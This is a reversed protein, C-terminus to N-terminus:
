SETVLGRGTKIVKGEKSLDAHIRDLLGNIFISSKSTSYYKAMELYEDFTVKVPISPFEVLENIAMQMILNDILAVREIDWNDVHSEIIKLYEDYHFISARLLRCAFEKDDESKYLPLIRCVRDQQMEKVTKAVMSIVFNIDDNWFISQEEMIDCFMEHRDLENTFFDIILQKDDAYSCVPLDMYEKYYASEALVNYLNKILEPHNAWSMKHESLYKNFAPNDELQRIIENDIFRTNPHLDEYTPLLKSKALEIRSEAYRKVVIILLLLYFYLDYTKKVSFLLEKESKGAGSNEANIHAYLIQLIKIRLLRRSIM